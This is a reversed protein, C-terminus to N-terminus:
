AAGAGRGTGPCRATRPHPRMRADPPLLVSVPADRALLDAGWLYAASRGAIAGHAPLLLAVADCWMRHDGARHGDRHVYVDPLLRIWAPSRLM